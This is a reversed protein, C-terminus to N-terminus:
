YGANERQQQAEASKALQEQREVQKRAYDTFRADGCNVAKRFEREARKYNAVGGLKEYARGLVCFGHAACGTDKAIGRKVLDIAETNKGADTLLDGLRYYFASEEPSEAILTRYLEAAKASQGTEEYCAALGRLARGKADKDASATAAVAEWHPVAGNCDNAWRYIFALRGHAWTTWAEDKGNDPRALIAEYLTAAEPYMKRDYFLKALRDYNSLESPDLEVAHRFAEIAELPYNAQEYAIGLNSYASPEDPCLKLAEEYAKVAQDVLKQSLYAFGVSSRATCNTPDLEAYREYVKVAREFDGTKVLAYGLRPYVETNKDDIALAKEYQEVAKDPLGSDRYQDGQFLYQRLMDQEPSASRVEPKKGEDKGKAAAPGGPGLAAVAGLALVCAWNRVTSRTM